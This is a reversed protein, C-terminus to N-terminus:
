EKEHNDVQKKECFCHFYYLIFISFPLLLFAFSEGEGSM